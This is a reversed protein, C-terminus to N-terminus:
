RNVGRDQALNLTKDVAKIEKSLKKVMPKDALARDLKRYLRQIQKDIVAIEPDEAILRAREKVLQIQLDHRRAQLAAVRNEPATAARPAVTLVLAVIILIGARRGSKTM